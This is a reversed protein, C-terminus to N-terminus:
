IGFIFPRFLIFLVVLVFGLIIIRALLPLRKDGIAIIIWSILVSLIFLSMALGAAFNCVALKVTTDSSNFTVLISTILILASCFLCCITVIVHPLPRTDYPAGPFLIKHLPRPIRVALGIYSGDSKKGNSSIGYFFILYILAPFAHWLIESLM